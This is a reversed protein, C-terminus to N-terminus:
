DGTVFPYDIPQTERPIDIEIKYIQGAYQREIEKTIKKVDAQDTVYVIIKRKSMM